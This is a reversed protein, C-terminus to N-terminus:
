VKTPTKSFLLKLEKKNVKGMVNRPLSEWVQLQQPIKYPALLNHAWRQLAKLTLVPEHVSASGAIQEKCPVIIAVVIEGYDKDPTGMVVCEAIAPHQLLVAEIELTSIKFGGSKVIDVSTRGLIRIYDNEMTATDGTEFFGDETFANKTVEPQRWYERFMGPSKVYLEGVGTEDAAIRVEVGPFPKGVYGPRREGNLPNSIAMGFETMGYRELLCHGTVIEWKVGKPKGTTGSTYVILASQDGELASSIMQVKALLEDFSVSNEMEEENQLGNELSSISPLLCFHVDRKQAIQELLLQYDKTGLVFSVDADILIHLLETEPYNLALPVAVAGSLWTAWLGAVFEASPKAIIGVRAGKMGGGSRFSKLSKKRLVLTEYNAQSEEDNDHRQQLTAQLEEEDDVRHGHKAAANHCEDAMCSTHKVDPLSQLSSSLQFSARLLQSYSYNKHESSIAIAGLAEQATRLKVGIKLVEFDGRNKNKNKELEISSSSSSSCSSSTSSSAYWVHLGLSKLFKHNRPSLAGGGRGGGGGGGGGAAAAAAASVTQHLCLQWLLTTTGKFGLSWSM